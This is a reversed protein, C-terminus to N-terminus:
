TQSRAPTFYQLTYQTSYRRIAQKNRRCVSTTHFFKLLNTTLAM